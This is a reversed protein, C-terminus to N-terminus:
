GMLGADFYKKLAFQSLIIGLLLAVFTVFILGASMDMARTPTPEAQLDTVEELRGASARKAM